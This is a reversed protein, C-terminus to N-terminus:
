PKLSKLLNTAMEAMTQLFQARNAQAEQVMAMHIQWLDQDVGQKHAPVYVQTDGDFAIRTM